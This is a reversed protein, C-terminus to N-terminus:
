LRTPPPNWPACNRKVATSKFYVTASKVLLTGTTTKITAYAAWRHVKGDPICTGSYTTGSSTGVTISGGGAVAPDDRDRFKMTVRSTDCLRYDAPFVVFGGADQFPKNMSITPTCAASNVAATAAPTIVLTPLAVLTLAASAILRGRVTRWHDALPSREGVV